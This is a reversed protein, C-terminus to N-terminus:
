SASFRNAIDRALDGGEGLFRSIIVQASSTCSPYSLEYDHFSRNFSGALREKRDATKAEAELLQEMRARWDSKAGCLDDLWALAGLIEALRLIRPEYPPPPPEPPAQPNAGETKGPEAKGTEGKAAGSRAPADPRTKAGKEKGAPGHNTKASGGAGDPQPDRPAAAVTASLAMAAALIAAFALIGQAKRPARPLAAVM